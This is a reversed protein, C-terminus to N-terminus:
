INRIRTASEAIAEMSINRITFLEKSTIGRNMSDTIAKRFDM